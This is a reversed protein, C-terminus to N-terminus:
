EKKQFGAIFFGDMSYLGQIIPLCYVRELPYNKYQNRVAKERECLKEPLYKRIPFGSFEPHTNLFEEANHTNEGENITCTSYILIGGPRVYDAAVALIRQQLQKLNELDERLLRQKIDSKRGLVGLGSCPLDALVLDYRESPAKALIEEDPMTADWVKVTVNDAQLREKNEEIRQVKEETLDRADVTGYEGALESLFLTKGGPAACLDLLKLKHKRSFSLVGSGIGAALCALMSSEDQIQFEGELFGPIQEVYDYGSIILSEETYAGDLATIGAAQLKERLQEKTTKRCNVRITMPSEKLGAQALQEFIEAGYMELGCATLWEPLSYRVSFYKEPESRDPYVIQDRNRAISRLVGNVFGSLGSFGRKGALKVAENCAASDPVQDMYLIQYVGMRLLQRIVPKMKTTKTKSFQDIVYDLEIVREATGKCLRNLFSREQKPLYQHIMQQERLVENLKRGHELSEMLVFLAISRASETKQEKLM